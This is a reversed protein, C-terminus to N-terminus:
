AVEEVRLAQDDWVVLLGRDGGTEAVAAGVAGAGVVGEAGSGATELVMEAVVGCRHVLQVGLALELAQALAEVRQLRAM